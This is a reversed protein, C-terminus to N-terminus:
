PMHRPAPDAGRMNVKTRVMVVACQLAWGIALSTLASGCVSLVFWFYLRVFDVPICRPGFENKHLRITASLFQLPSCPWGYLPDCPIWPTCLLPIFALLSLLLWLKLNTQFRALWTSRQKTPETQM